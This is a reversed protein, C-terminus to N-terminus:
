IDAVNCFCYNDLYKYNHYYDESAQFFETFLAPATLVFATGDVFIALRGELLAAAVSDPKESNLFEPFLSYRDDKILEEIYGSDLIGDIRIKKLRNKVENIIDEKAIEEIYMLSVRTKSVSGLTIEELRLAKNKIRKRVLAINLDIKETFGEKSGRIVTQSTPEDVDRGEAMYTDIAFFKKCGDILFVSYGSLLYGYLMEFDSSEKTLRIGSLGNMLEYFDTDTTKSNKNENIKALELSLSNISNKDVLEKIYVVAFIFDRANDMRSLKVVLDSSNGLENRIRAINKQIDKDLFIAAQSNRIIKSKMIIKKFRM